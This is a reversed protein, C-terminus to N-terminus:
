DKTRWKEWQERHLEMLVFSYGDEGLHGCPIFGCKEFCRQARKNWTLTKLYVRELGTQCFIHNVLTTVADVGYGKDWNNCNGIMIGLEAEKKTKNIGYYTCNGVHKGELTEIAFQHKVSSPCRLASAYESLYQSFAMTLLPAADLRALESDTQWIYDNQADALKKNRLRVKSGSIMSNKLSDLGSLSHPRRWRWNM